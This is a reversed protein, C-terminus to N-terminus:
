DRRQGAEFSRGNLSHAFDAALPVFKLYADQAAVLKSSLVQLLCKSLDASERRCCLAATAAYAM